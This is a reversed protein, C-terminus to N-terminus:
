KYQLDAFYDRSPNLIFYALVVRQLQWLLIRRLNKSNKFHRFGANYREPLIREPFAQIYSM